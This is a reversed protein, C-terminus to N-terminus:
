EDSGIPKEAPSRWGVPPETAIGRDVLLQLTAAREGESRFRDIYATADAVPWEDLKELFPTSQIQIWHHERRHSFTELGTRAQEHFDLIAAAFTSELTTDSDEMVRRAFSACDEAADAAPKKCLDLWPSFRPLIDLTLDWMPEYGRLHEPQNGFLDPSLREYRLLIKDVSETFPTGYVGANAALRLAERQLAADGLSEAVGMLSIAYYSNRVAALRLGEAILRAEVPDKGLRSFNAAYLALPLAPDVGSPPMALADLTVVQGVPEGLKLSLLLDTLGDGPLDAAARHIRLTALERREEPGGDEFEQAAVPSTLIIVFLCGLVIHRARVNPRNGTM